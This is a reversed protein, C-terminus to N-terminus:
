PKVEYGALRAMEIAELKATDLNISDVRAIVRRPGGPVSVTARYTVAMKPGSSWYQGITMRAPKM